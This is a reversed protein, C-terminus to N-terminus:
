ATALYRIMVAAHLATPNIRSSCCMASCLSSPMVCSVRIGMVSAAPQFDDWQPFPHAPDFWVGLASPQSSPPSIYRGEADRM